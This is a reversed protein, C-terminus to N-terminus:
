LCMKKIKKLYDPLLDVFNPQHTSFLKLSFYPTMATKQDEEQSFQLFSIELKKEELDYLSHWLTYLEATQEPCIRKTGFPIFVHSAAEKLASVSWKGEREANLEKYLAQCRTISDFTRCTSKSRQKFLLHNGIVQPKAGNDIFHFYSTQPDTEFVFSNGHPDAILFHFTFYPYYVKTKLLIEKVEKLTECTTLLHNLLQLSTLGASFYESSERNTKSIEEVVYASVSLGAQNVGEFVPNLLDIAGVSLSALGQDPYLELIYLEKMLYNSNADKEKLLDFSHSIYAHGNETYTPPMYFGSCGLPSKSYILSSPDVLLNAAPVKFAALVGLMREWLLPTHKMFYTRKAEAANPDNILPLKLHYRQKAIEALARGIQENSGKLRVHYVTLPQQHDQFFIKESFHLEEALCANEWLVMCSFLLALLLYRVGQLNRM